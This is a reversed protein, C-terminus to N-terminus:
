PFGTDGVSAPPDPIIHIRLYVTMGDHDLSDNLGIQRRNTYGIPHSWLQAEAHSPLVLRYAEVARILLEDFTPAHIVRKQVGSPDLFNDPRVLVVVM